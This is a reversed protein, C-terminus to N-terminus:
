RTERIIAPYGVVRCLCPDGHKFRAIQHEKHGRMVLIEPFPQDLGRFQIKIIRAQGCPQEADLVRFVHRDM